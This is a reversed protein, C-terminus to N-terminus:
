KIKNQSQCYYTCIGSNNQNEGRPLCGSIFLNLCIESTNSRTLNDMITIIQSNSCQCNTCFTILIIMIIFKNKADYIDKSIIYNYYCVLSWLLEFYPEKEFEQNLKIKNRVFDKTKINYNNEDKNSRIEKDNYSPNILVILMPILRSDVKYAKEGVMYASNNDTIFVRPDYEQKYPSVRVGDSVHKEGNYMFKILKDGRPIDNILFSIINSLPLTKLIKVSEFNFPPPIRIFYDNNLLDSDINSTYVSLKDKTFESMEPYSLHRTVHLVNSKLNISTELTYSFVRNIFLLQM